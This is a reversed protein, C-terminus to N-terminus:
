SRRVRAGAREHKRVEQDIKEINLITQDVLKRIESLKPEQGGFRRYFLYCNYFCGYGYSETRMDFPCKHNSRRYKMAKRDPFEEPFLATEKETFDDNCFGCNSGTHKFGTLTSDFCSYRFNKQHVTSQIKLLIAEYQEDTLYLTPDYKM